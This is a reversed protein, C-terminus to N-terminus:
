GVITLFAGERQTYVVVPVRYRFLRNQTGNVILSLSGTVADYSSSFSTPFTNPVCRIGDPRWCIRGETTNYRSEDPNGPYNCFDSTLALYSVSDERSPYRSVFVTGTIRGILTVMTDLCCAPFCMIVYTDLTM